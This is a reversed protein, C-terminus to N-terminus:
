GVLFDGQYFVVAQGPTIAKQLQHFHVHIKGDPLPKVTVPSPHANYRVQAEMVTTETLAEFLIFNNDIAILNHKLVAEAPGLVVANLEPKIAVVYNKEGTAIGLGRCQGITYYPIGRHKGIINGKLDLFDGASFNGGVRQQLFGRYDNDPIFCIEQSEPKTAVALGLKVAMQRVEDKNYIALPMLTRAIQHQTMNYLVYTQNKRTDLPKKIVWRDHQKSYGLQAYHGTAIFEAGLAVAKNVLAGFKLYRNCAICPNPTRGRLYEAIFYDIVKKKFINQFDLTYHPIGLQDAIQKADNPDAMTDWLKMTIGICQYGQQQLLAAAVASDVGGSMAIFVKKKNKM